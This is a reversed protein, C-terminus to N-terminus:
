SYTIRRTDASLDPFSLSKLCRDFHENSSLKFLKVKLVDWDGTAARSTPISVVSEHM